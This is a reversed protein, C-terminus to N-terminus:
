LLDVDWMMDHYYYMKRNKERSWYGFQENFSTHLLEKNITGYTERYWIIFATIISHFVNEDDIIKDHCAKRWAQNTKWGSYVDNLEPVIFNVVGGVGVDVNPEKDPSPYKCILVHLFLHELYDCYVLREKKQWEFPCLEAFKKESLMIMKDEDMHHVVLGESTRSVKPNKNFSKTMYDYKPIGYKDQLYACYEQYNMSAVKMYELKKM